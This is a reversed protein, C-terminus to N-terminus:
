VLLYNFGEYYKIKRIPFSQLKYIWLNRFGMFSKLRNLSENRLDMALWSDSVSERLVLKATFTVKTFCMFYIM